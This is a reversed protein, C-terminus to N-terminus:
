IKCKVFDTHKAAAKRLMSAIESNVDAVTIVLTDIARTLPMMIWQFVQEWKQKDPNNIIGSEVPMDHFKIRVIEDINYCVTCWGELGRCSEYQFIRCSDILENPKCSALAKTNTGDILNIKGVNRWREAPIFHNDEVQEPSVLIFIDYNSCESNRCRLELETHLDTTYKSDIIVKGGELGQIPDLGACTDAIKMEATLTKLFSVINSKQRLGKKLRINPQGWKAATLRRIKQLASKAVVIREAGFVYELIEKEIPTCDQAEDLFIFDDIDNEYRMKLPKNGNQRWLNRVYDRKKESEGIHSWGLFCGLSKLYSHLTCITLNNRADPSSPIFSILRQLDMTLANNYTLLACSYGEDARKLATQLLLFTKGTGAKGDICNFDASKLIVDVENKLAGSVLKEIKNRLVMPAVPRAQTLDSVLKSLYDNSEDLNPNMTIANLTGNYIRQGSKIIQSVIDDFSFSSLLVPSMSNWQKAEWTETSVSKLWLINTIFIPYNNQKCYKLISYKQKRNQESANKMQKTSPYNVYIDTVTAFVDDVSQEKLEIVTCFRKVDVQEGDIEVNCNELEAVVLIDIDAVEGFPVNVSSIIDITGTTTSPITNKIVEVMTEAAHAEACDGNISHFNISLMNKVIQMSYYLPIIKKSIDFM